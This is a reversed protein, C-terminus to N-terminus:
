VRPPNLEHYKVPRLGHSAELHLRKLGVLWMTGGGGGSGGDHSVLPAGLNGLINCMATLLPRCHAVCNLSIPYLSLCSFKAFPSRVMQVMQLIAIRYFSLNIKLM